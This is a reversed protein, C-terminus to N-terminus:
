PLHRRQCRGVVGPQLFQACRAGAGAAVRVLLRGTSGAAAHGIACVGLILSAVLGVIVLPWAWRMLRKGRLAVLIVVLIEVALIFFTLYHTLLMALTALIYAAAWLRRSGEDRDVLRLLAYFSLLGLFPAMMYMRAEQSYWLYMPSLAAMLAAFRGAGTSKLRKGTVYILPILLIGFVLSPLRLAFESTGFVRVTLSLLLFYLPPHNDITAVVAHGDTLDIRNSLIDALPLRARLLSLSEDWWLSQTGLGHSRVALAILICLSLWFLTWRRSTTNDTTNM